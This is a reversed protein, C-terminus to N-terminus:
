NKRPLTTKVYDETAEFLPDRGASARILPVIKKRVGMGRMDIYSYDRLTELIIPNRVSRQGALMKEISMANQLAGPSKIELRDNYNVIEVENSRTWDRHAFANLVAERVAEHPYHWQRERRFNEDPKDAEISIFPRMRDIIREILGMQTLGRGQGAAGEFLGVLPADLYVDDQAQYDMDQGAFSMWRLGARRFHRRPSHAFLVTGAVTCVPQGANGVTMFGLGKLRREWDDNDVPGAADGVINILYDELRAQDLSKFGTGYVPMLEVHILGGSESLQILQERTVPRSVSGVRIYTEERDHCRVVYPKANCDKVFIIAVKKQGEVMVEEYFPIIAPHIYRGFVTDMVWTELGGRQIGSITGDDEVGILVRGGQFNALAVIERALQEPRLDDRKFEVGSNEGNAILELLEAKLM